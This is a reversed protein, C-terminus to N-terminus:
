KFPEYIHNTFKERIEYLHKLLSKTNTYIEIEERHKISNGIFDGYNCAIVIEYIEVKVPTLFDSYRSFINSWKKM